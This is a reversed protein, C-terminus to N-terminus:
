LGLEIKRVEIINKIAYNRDKFISIVNELYKNINESLALYTDIAIYCKHGEIYTNIASETLKTSKDWNFKYYDYLENRIGAQVNSIKKYTYKEESVITIYKHLKSINKNQEQILNTEDIHCLDIEVSKKLIEFKDELDKKASNLKSVYGEVLELTEFKKVDYQM